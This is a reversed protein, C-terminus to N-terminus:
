RDKPRHRYTEPLFSMAIRLGQMLGTIYTIEEDRIEDKIRLMNWEYEAELNERLKKMDM